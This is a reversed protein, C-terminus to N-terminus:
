GAEQWNENLSSLKCGGPWLHVSSVGAPAVDLRDWADLPLGLVSLLLARIVDLHSVLAASGGRHAEGVRHVVALARAQAEAFSEGGPPRTQSRAENWRRWHPDEGLEAFRRGTWDGYAIEDLGDEIHLPVGAAKAIMEATEVARERPSSYVASLGARAFRAGLRRAEAVGAESLRVGPMRGCLVDAARGHTAHRVLYLLTAGRTV